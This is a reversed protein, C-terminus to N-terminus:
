EIYGAAKFTETMSKVWREQAQEASLDGSFTDTIFDTTGNWMVSGYEPIGQRIFVQELVEGYAPLFDSYYPELSSLEESEFHTKRSFQESRKGWEIENDQLMWKLFKFAEESNPTDFVMVGGGGLFPVGQEYGALNDEWVPLPSYDVNGAAEGNEDEVTGIGQPWMVATALGGDRFLALGELFDWTQAERPATNRALDVFYNASEVLIPDDIDPQFDDDFGDLGASYLVVIFSRTIGTGSGLADAWGYLPRELTRGAVTEGAERTFFEAVERWEAYTAPLTLERGYEEAFAAKEEANEFWDRRAIMLPAAPTTPLAIIEDPRADSKMHSDIVLQPYADVNFDYKEILPTLDLAYDKFSGFWGPSHYGLDWRATGGIAEISMQDRLQDPPLIEGIVKVGTEEEYKPAFYDIVADAEAGPHLAWRITTDQAVAFTSLTMGFAVACLPGATRSELTM